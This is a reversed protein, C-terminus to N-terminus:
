HIGTYPTIQSKIDGNVALVDVYVTKLSTNILTYAKKLFKYRLNFLPVRSSEFGRYLPINIERM